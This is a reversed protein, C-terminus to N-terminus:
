YGNGPETSLGEGVRLAPYNGARGKTGFGETKRFRSVGSKIPSYVVSSNCLMKMMCPKEPRLKNLTRRRM